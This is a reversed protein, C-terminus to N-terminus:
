FALLLMAALMYVSAYKFLGINAKRSPKFLVFLAMMVLAGSLIGLLHLFGGSVQILIAASTILAAAIITSIVVVNRTFKIGYTSPFTPIGAAAYDEAYQISFTLIHTPIWFLVSLMLLIGIVDVQGMGLVRGALIPIGGAIGGWVISWCTRRKLWITYVLFDFVIGLLLILSYLPALIFGIGVGLVSLVLGISLANRPPIKGQALPRHHTRNMVGDIDRDYWMNLATSGAIAFLMSFVLAVMSSWHTIPCRASMFGALGTVTLLLTQLSKFLPWYRRITQWIMRMGNDMM